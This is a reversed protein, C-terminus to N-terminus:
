EVAKYVLPNEYDEYTKGRDYLKNYDKILWLYRDGKSDKYIYVYNSIHDYSGDGNPYDAYFDELFVKEADEPLGGEIRVFTEDFYTVSSYDESIIVEPEGSSAWSALGIFIVIAMALIIVSKLLLGLCGGMGPKMDREIQQEKKRFIEARETPTVDYFGKILKSVYRESSYFKLVTYKPVFLFLDPLLLRWDIFLLFKKQLKLYEKRNTIEVDVVKLNGNSTEAQSFVYAVPMMDFVDDAIIGDCSSYVGDSLVVECDEETETLEYTVKTMVAMEPLKDVFKKTLKFIVKEGLKTPKEVDKFEDGFDPMRHELTFRKRQGFFPLEIESMPELTYSRNEYSLIVKSYEDTNRFTIFM